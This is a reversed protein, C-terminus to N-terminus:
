TFHNFYDIALIFAGKREDEQNVDSETRENTDSIQATYLNTRRTKPTTIREQVNIWSGYVHTNLKKREDNTPNIKLEAYKNDVNASSAIDKPTSEITLEDASEEDESEVQVANTYGSMDLTELAELHETCHFLFFQIFFIKKNSNM